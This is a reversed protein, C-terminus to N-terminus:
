RNRFGRLRLDAKVETRLGPPDDVVVGGLVPVEVLERFLQDVELIIEPAPTEIVDGRDLADDAEFAARAARRADGVELAHQLDLEEWFEPAHARSHSGPQLRRRREALASLRAFSKTKAALDQLKRLAPDTPPLPRSRRATEEPCKRTLKKTPAPRRANTSRRRRRNRPSKGKNDPGAGTKALGGKM